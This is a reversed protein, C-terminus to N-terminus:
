KRVVAVTFRVPMGLRDLARVNEQSLQFECTGGGDDDVHTAVFVDVYAEEVGDIGTLVPGHDGIKLALEQILVPLDSSKTEAVLAWLGIKAVVVQNTSTVKKQGKSQSKSPAIGLVTSVHDPDLDDGRLYIAVDFLYDPEMM